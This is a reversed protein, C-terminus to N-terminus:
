IVEQSDNGLETERYRRPGETGVRRNSSSQGGGGVAFRGKRGARVWGIWDISEGCKEAMSLKYDYDDIWRKVIMYSWWANDRLFDFKEWWVQRQTPGRSIRDEINEKLYKVERACRLKFDTPNSRMVEAGRGDWMQSLAM